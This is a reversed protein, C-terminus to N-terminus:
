IERSGSPGDDVSVPRPAGRTVQEQVAAARSKVKDMEEKAVVRVVARYAPLGNRVYREFVKKCTLCAYEDALIKNTKWDVNSWRKMVANCQPCRRSEARESRKLQPNNEIPLM